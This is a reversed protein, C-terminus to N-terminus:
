LENIIDDAAQAENSVTQAEFEKVAEKYQKMSREEIAKTKKVATTVVEKRKDQYEEIIKKQSLGDRLAELISDQNEKDLVEFVDLLQAQLKPDINDQFAALLKKLEDV